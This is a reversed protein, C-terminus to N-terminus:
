TTPVFRKSGPPRVMTTREPPRILSLGSCPFQNREALVYLVLTCGHDLGEDKLKRACGTPLNLFLLSLLVM